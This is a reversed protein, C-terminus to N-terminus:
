YIVYKKSLLVGFCYEYGSMQISDFFFHRLLQSNARFRNVRSCQGVYLFFFVCHPFNFYFIELRFTCASFLIVVVVFIFVDVNSIATSDALFVNITDVITQKCSM